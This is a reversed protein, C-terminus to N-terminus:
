KKLQYLKATEEIVTDIPTFTFGLEDIAKKNSYLTETFAEEIFRKTIYKSGGLRSTIGQIIWGLQLMWKKVAVKPPKVLLEKAIKTLVQKFSCNESVLIFRENYVKSQMAKYMFSAVDVAGVFGTTKPLYFSLGKAVRSFLSASGQQWNGAGIIVGPNVILVPLGEQSARWVEMEAGYKTISYSSYVKESIRASDETLEVGQLEEGLTAVSSVHCLKKVNYTLALNVVNATGEINVKRLKFYDKENFSIYGACHYVYAIGKYADSLEPINTVDARFWSLREFAGAPINATTIEKLRELCAEKAEVTRYLARIPATASKDALLVSLLYTGVLGTAGTILIM